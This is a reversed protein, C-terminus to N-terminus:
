PLLLNVDGFLWRYGHDTADAHCALLASTM